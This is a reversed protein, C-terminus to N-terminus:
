GGSKVELEEISQICGFPIDTTDSDGDNAMNHGLQLCYRKHYKYTRLFFGISIIDTPTNKDRKEKSQWDGDMSIDIWRVALMTGKEFKAPRMVIREKLV